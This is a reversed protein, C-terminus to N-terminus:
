STALCGRPGNTLGLQFASVRDRTDGHASPRTDTWPTQDAVSALGDYLEQSDGSDWAMLGDNAAGQLTAGAFCDAQLEYAQWVFQPQLRAAIAHGYEHAVVMWTFSDGIQYQRQLLNDDLGIFDGNACYHANQADLYGGDCVLMDGPVNGNYLGNVGVSSGTVVNPPTYYGGFEVPFHNEWYLEVVQFAQTAEQEPTGDGPGPVAAAPLATSAVLALGGLAAAIARKMGLM